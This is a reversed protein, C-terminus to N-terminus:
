GGIVRRKANDFEEDTLAGREHLAALRELEASVSATPASARSDAADDIDADQREYVVLVHADPRVVLALLGLTFIRACGASQPVENVTAIRWGNVMWSERAAEFDKHSAYEVVEQPSISEWPKPTRLAPRDARVIGNFDADTVHYLPTGCEVCSARTDDNEHSCESCLLM